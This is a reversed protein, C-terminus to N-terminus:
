TWKPRGYVKTRTPCSDYTEFVLLLNQLIRHVPKAYTYNNMGSTTLTDIVKILVCRGLFDEKKLMHLSCTATQVNGCKNDM